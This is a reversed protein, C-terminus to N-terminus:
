YLRAIFLELVGTLLPSCNCSTNAYHEAEPNRQLDSIDRRANCLVGAHQQSIIPSPPERPLFFESIIPSKLSPITTPHKLNKQQKM